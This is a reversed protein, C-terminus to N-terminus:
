GLDRHLAEAIGYFRSLASVGSTPEVQVLMVRQVVPTAVRPTIDPSM